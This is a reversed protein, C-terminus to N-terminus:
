IRKSGHFAKLQMMTRLQMQHQRGGLGWFNIPPIPAAPLEREPEADGIPQSQLLGQSEEQTKLYYAVASVAALKKKKDKM